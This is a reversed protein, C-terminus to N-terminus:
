SGMDHGHTAAFHRSRQDDAGREHARAIERNLLQDLAREIESIDKKDRIMQIITAKTIM